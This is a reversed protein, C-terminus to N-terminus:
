KKMLGDFNLNWLNKFYGGKEFNRLVFAFKKPNRVGTLSYIEFFLSFNLGFNFNWFIRLFVFYFLRAFLSIKDM